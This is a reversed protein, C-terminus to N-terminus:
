GVDQKDGDTLAYSAQEGRDVYRSPSFLDTM